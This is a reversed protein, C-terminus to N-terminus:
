STSDSDARGHDPDNFATPREKADTRAESGSDRVDSQIKKLTDGTDKLQDGTDKLGKKFEVFSKGLSRGVEPLRRGFILLAVIGIVIMEPMGLNPLFALIPDQALM